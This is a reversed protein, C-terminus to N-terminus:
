SPLPCDARISWSGAAAVAARAAAAARSSAARARPVAARSLPHSRPRHLRAPTERSLRFGVVGFVPVFLFSGAGSGVRQHALVGLPVFAALLALVLGGLLVATAPSALRVRGATAPATV